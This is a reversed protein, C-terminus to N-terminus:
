KGRHSKLERAVTKGLSRCVSGMDGGYWGGTLTGKIVLDGHGAITVRAKLHGAGAGFGAWYRASRNGPDLELIYIDVGIGGGDIRLSKAADRFGKETATVWAHEHAMAYSAKDDPLKSFAGSDVSVAGLVFRADPPLGAIHDETTRTSSCGIALLVLALTLLKM